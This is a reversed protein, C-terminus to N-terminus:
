QDLEKNFIKLYDQLHELLIIILNFLEKVEEWKILQHKDEKIILHHSLNKM